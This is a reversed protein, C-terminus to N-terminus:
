FPLLVKPNSIALCNTLAQQELSKAIQRDSLLSISYDQSYPNGFCLNLIQFKRRSSTFQFSSISPTSAQLVATFSNACLSAAGTKTAMHTAITAEMLACFTEM